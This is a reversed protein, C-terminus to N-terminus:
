STLGDILFDSLYNFLSPYKKKKKGRRKAAKSQKMRRELYTFEAHLYIDREKRKRKMAM